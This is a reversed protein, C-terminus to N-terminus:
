DPNTPVGYLEIGSIALHHTRDSNVDTQVLRFTNFGGNINLKKCINPDIGWTSTAGKQCLM